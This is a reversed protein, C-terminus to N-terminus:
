IVLIMSSIKGLRCINICEESKCWGTLLIGEFKLGYIVNELVSMHPFLGYSQFVTSVPRDEPPLNTIDINDLIISGNDLKLFGGIARLITTKGCGSPGLITLLEGQKVSFSVNLVATVQNYKKTLNSAKLYM